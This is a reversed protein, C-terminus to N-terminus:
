RVGSEYIEVALAAAAPLVMDRDTDYARWCAEVFAAAVGAVDVETLVTERVKGPEMDAEMSRRDTVM